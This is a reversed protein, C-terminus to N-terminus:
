PRLWRGDQSPGSKGAVASTIRTGCRRSPLSRPWATSAGRRVSEPLSRRHTGRRRGCLWHAVRGPRLGQDDLAPDAPQARPRPGALWTWPCIAQYAEDVVFLTHPHKKAWSLILGTALVSGTPNNPNCLFALRPRCRHLEGAIALPAFRDEAPRESTSTPAMCLRRGPTNEM